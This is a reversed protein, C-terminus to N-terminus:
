RPGRQERRQRMEAQMTKLKAQQDSTLIQLVEAYIRARLVTEDAEVAAVDASRTRILTEDFASSTIASELADHAAMARKSIAQQDERHNDVIQKVRDRQDSTLDLRELMMPGLVGMPGGRGGPGGRGFRGGPAGGPGGLRGPGGRGVAPGQASDAQSTAFGVGALAVTIAAASLGLVIRKSMGSM